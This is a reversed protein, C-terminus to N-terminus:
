IADLERVLQALFQAEGPRHEKDAEVVAQAVDILAKIGEKSKLELRNMAFTLQLRTPRFDKLYGSLATEEEPTMGTEADRLNNQCCAFIANREVTATEGDSRALPPLAILRHNLEGRVCDNEASGM